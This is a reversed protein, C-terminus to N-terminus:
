FRFQVLFRGPIVFPYGLIGFQLTQTLVSKLGDHITWDTARDLITFFVPSSQIRHATRVQIAGGQEIALKVYNQSYADPYAHRDQFSFAKPIWGTEGGDFKFTDIGYKSKLLNLKETYYAVSTPNTTDLISCQGNWWQTIGPNSGTVDRVWLGKKCGAVFNPSDINTFPHVWLKVSMNMAHLESVLGSVDPFKIRDFELDGYFVEWKDDIQIQSIRYGNDHIQRAFELVKTQTVDKFCYSWTTFVPLKMMELDPFKEPYGMFNRIMSLHLEKVPGTCVTYV